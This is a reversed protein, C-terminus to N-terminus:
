IARWSNLSTSLIKEESDKPDFNLEFESGIEMGEVPIEIRVHRYPHRADHHIEDYNIIAGLQKPTFSREDPIHTSSVEGDFTLGTQESETNNM